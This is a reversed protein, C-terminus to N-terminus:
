KNKKRATEICERVAIIVSVGKYALEKKLKEKNEDHFKRHAPITVVHDTEVGIGRIVSELRSSPLITTQGGTMATTENDVIIITVDTNSAVCDVLGTLGSHLFTSDGIVAMVNKLGAEASGKASTISAGMCIITEPVSLPPLAGLAYCGIDSTVTSEEGLEAQVEKIVMYTDHHPCGKCLQPPRGALEMSAPAASERAPLGLAPRINDPNLEGQYPVINDLKGTIKLDRPLLGGILREVLPYGEELIILEKVHAAIKKVKDEPIPYVGIHLHSPKDTLDAENEKYYNYGLGTTIVARETNAENMVLANVPSNESYAIMDKQRGLLNDWRRRANAPLLMWDMKNPAKNVPNEERPASTTIAARSHSLRTVLRLLVPCGMKESLDFAERTMDYAQQQNVPELLPIKAFDGYFRTDQENQSSHMGPDDAVVIVLGGRIDLLSGNMFADAAVNLGVHKMTVIARKGAFSTGLAEELATKENSSWCAFPSGKKKSHELLYEMIETSPTGPYGYCSSVGGHVAGLAVAEDGLVVYESM